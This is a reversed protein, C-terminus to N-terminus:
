SRKKNELVLRRKKAREGAPGLPSRASWRAGARAELSQLAAVRRRCILLASGGRRRARAVCIWCKSASWVLADWRSPCPAVRGRGAGRAGVTGGRRGRCADCVCVGSRL